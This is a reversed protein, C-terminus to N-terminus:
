QLFSFLTSRINDETQRPNIEVVLIGLGFWGVPYEICVSTMGLIYFHPSALLAPMELRCCLAIPETGHLLTTLLTHYM